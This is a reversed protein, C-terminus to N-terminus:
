QFQGTVARGSVASAAATNSGPGSSADNALLPQACAALTLLGALAAGRLFFTLQIM